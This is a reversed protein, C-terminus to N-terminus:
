LGQLALLAKFHVGPTVMSRQPTEPPIRQPAPASHARPQPAPTPSQPHPSSTHHARTRHAPHATLEPALPPATLAPTSLPPATLLHATLPPATLEPATLPPPTLEPATLPTSHAGNHYAPHPSSLQPSRSHPSSPHSSLPDPGTSSSLHRSSLSPLGWAQVWCQVQREPDHLHHPFSQLRAGGHSLLDENCPADRCAQRGGRQHPKPPPLPGPLSPLLTQRPFLELPCAGRTM